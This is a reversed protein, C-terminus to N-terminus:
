EARTSRGGSLVKGAVQGKLLAFDPLTREGFELFLVEFGIEELSFGGDFALLVALQFDDLFSL